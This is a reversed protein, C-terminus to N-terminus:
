IFDYEKLRVELRGPISSQLSIRIDRFFIMDVVAKLRYPNGEMRLSFNLRVKKKM